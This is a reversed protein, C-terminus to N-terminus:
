PKPLRNVDIVPTSDPLLLPLALWLAILVVAASHLSAGGPRPVSSSPLVMTGGLCALLTYDFDGPIDLAGEWFYCSM